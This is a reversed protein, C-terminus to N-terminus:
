RETSVAIKIVGDLRKEFLEYAEDIRELPYTHTILPEADLKGKPDFAIAYYDDNEGMDGCWCNMYSGLHKKVPEYKSLDPYWGGTFSTEMTIRGCIFGGSGQSKYERNMEYYIETAKECETRFLFDGTVKGDVSTVMHCIIYPRNM